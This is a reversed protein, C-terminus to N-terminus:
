YVVPAAPGVVDKAARSDLRRGRREEFVLLVAEDAECKPGAM